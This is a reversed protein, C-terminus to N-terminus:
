ETIFKKLHEFVDTVTQVHYAIITAFNETSTVTKQSLEATHNIAEVVETKDSNMKNLAENLSNMEESISFIANTINAFAEDTETISNSQQNIAEEMSKVASIVSGYQIYIDQILKKILAASENSQTSFKNFEEAVVAFGRGADGARAAEISANLALLNTQQGTMEIINAFEDIKKLIETFRELSSSIEEFMRFTAQSKGQLAEITGLGNKSLNNIKDANAFITNYNNYITDLYDSLKNLLDACMQLEDAQESVPASIEDISQFIENIESFSKESLSSVEEISNSIEEKSNSLQEIQTTYKEILDKVASYINKFQSNGSFNLNAPPNDKNLSNITICLKKASRGIICCTLLSSLLASAALPIVLSYDGKVLGFGFGIFVAAITTIVPVILSHSKMAFSPLKM